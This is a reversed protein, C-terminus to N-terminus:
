RWTPPPTRCPVGRWSRGPLSRVTAATLRAPGGRRGDGRGEEQELGQPHSSAHGPALAVIMVRAGWLYPRNAADKGTMLFEKIADTYFWYGLLVLLYIPTVYTLVFKFIRPVKLDAGKHM